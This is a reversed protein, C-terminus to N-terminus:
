WIETKFGNWEPSTFGEATSHYYITYDPSQSDDKPNVYETPANGEFMVKELSDCNSFTYKTIEEVSKPIIIETLKSEGGFALSGIAILGDNLTVSELEPCAYFAYNNVYILSEPTTIEKIKTGSFAKPDIVKTGINLKVTELGSDKFANYEIREVSGPINIHKLATCSLFTGTGIEILSEPLNIESLKPSESFVGACLTELNQSLVVKTLSDCQSFAFFGIVTITDPMKVSVINTNNAFANSDIQTVTKGNITEPIIVETDTGVYKTIIVNDSEVEYEFDTAPNEQDTSYACGTLTLVITVLVMLISFFRKNM